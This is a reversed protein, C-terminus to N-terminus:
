VGGYLNQIAVSARLYEEGVDGNFSFINCGPIVTIWESDPSLYNIINRTVGSNYSTIHKNGRLTSITIEQNNDLYFMGSFSMEQNTTLNKIRPSYIKSIGSNYLTIVVGTETDGNNYVKITNNDIRESVPIGEEPISFPFEFLNICHAFETINKNNDIWYPNTCIISIQAMVGQAFIDYEFLEVYGDIYVDLSNNKYYVRLFRKSLITSNLELRNKEVNGKIALTIVINRTELRSSNFRAGDFNPIVSTSIAAPPQNLGTVSTLQWKDENQTLRLQKNYENEVKFVAM